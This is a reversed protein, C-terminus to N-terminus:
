AIPINTNKAAELRRIEDRLRAAEEYAESKIAATMNERAKAISEGIANNLAQGAPLKGSHEAGPQIRPLLESLEEAFTKYCAACGLRHTKEFEASTQGCKACTKNASSLSEEADPQEGSEINKQLVSLAHMIPSLPGGLAGNKAACAECFHAKSV